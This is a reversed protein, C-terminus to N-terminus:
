YPQRRHPLPRGNFRRPPLKRRLKHVPQVLLHYKMWQLALLKIFLKFDLDPFSLLAYRIRCPTGKQKSYRAFSPIEQEFFTGVLSISRAMQLACDLAIEDARNRPQKGRRLQVRTIHKGDIV